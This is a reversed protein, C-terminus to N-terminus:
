KRGGLWGVVIGILVAALLVPWFTEALYLM